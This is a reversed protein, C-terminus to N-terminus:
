KVRQALRQYHSIRKQALGKVAIEWGQPPSRHAASSEATRAQRIAQTSVGLALAVDELTVSELLEDTAQKFNM